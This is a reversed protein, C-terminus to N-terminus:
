PAPVYIAPSAMVGAVSLTVLLLSAVLLALWWLRSPRERQVILRILVLEVGALGLNGIFEWMLRPGALAYGVMDVTPIDPSYFQPLQNAWCLPHVLFVALFVTPITLLSPSLVAALAGVLVAPVLAVIGSLPQLPWAVAGSHAGNTLCVIGGAVYGVLLTASAALWMATAIHISGRFAAGPALQRRVSGPWSRLVVLATLAAAAPSILMTAGNVVSVMWLWSRSWAADRLLTATMLIAFVVPAWWTTKMWLAPGRM